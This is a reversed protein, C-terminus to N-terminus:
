FNATQLLAQPKLEGTEMLLEMRRRMLQRRELGQALACRKSIADLLLKQDGIEEMCELYEGWAERDDKDVDIIREFYGSAKYPDDLGLRTISGLEMLVERKDEGESLAEEMELVQIMSEYHEGGRLARIVEARLDNQSRWLLETREVRVLPEPEPDGFCSILDAIAHLKDGRAEEHDEPLNQFELWLNNISSLWEPNDDGGGVGHAAEADDFSVAKQTQGWPGHIVKARQMEAREEPSMADLAEIHKEVQAMLVFFTELTQQM